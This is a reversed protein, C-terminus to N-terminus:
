FVNYIKEHNVTICNYRGHVSRAIGDLGVRAVINCSKAINTRKLHDGFYLEIMRMFKAEIKRVCNPWIWNTFFKEFPIKKLIIYNARKLAVAKGDTQKPPTLRIWFSNDVFLHRVPWPLQTTQATAQCDEFVAM